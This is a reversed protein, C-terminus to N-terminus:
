VSPIPVTGMRFVSTGSGIKDIVKGDRTALRVFPNNPQRPTDVKGVIVARFNFGDTRCVMVWDGRKAAAARISNSCARYKPPRLESESEVV